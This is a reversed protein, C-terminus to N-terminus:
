KFDLSAPVAKSKVATSHYSNLLPHTLTRIAYCIGNRKFLFVNDIYKQIRRTYLSINSKMGHSDINSYAVVLM